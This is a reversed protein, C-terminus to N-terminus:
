DVKIIKQTFTKEAQRAVFFYTGALLDSVDVRIDDSSALTVKKVLQGNMNIIHMTAPGTEETINALNVYVENISPNPYILFEEEGDIDFRVSRADTYENSGDNDVMNLRYYFVKHNNRANLPLTNDLFSYNQEVTSEGVADVTGLTSWNLLDQSREIEFHSGNTESSTSWDLQAARELKTVTFSKIDIPLITSQVGSIDIPFSGLGDLVSNLYIASGADTNVGDGLTIPAGETVNNFTLKALLVPTTTITSGVFDDGDLLDLQIRQNVSPDVGAPVDAAAVPTQGINNAASNWGLTGTTPTLDLDASGVSSVDITAQTDDYYFVLTESALSETGADAQAFVCVVSTTPANSADISISFSINQGIVAGAFLNLIFLIFINKM